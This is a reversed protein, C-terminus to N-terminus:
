LLMLAYALLRLVRRLPTTSLSKHLSGREVIHKKHVATYRGGLFQKLSPIASTLRWRPSFKATLDDFSPSPELCTVTPGKLTLTDPDTTADAVDDDDHLSGDELTPCKIFIQEQNLFPVRESSVSSETIHSSKNTANNRFPRISSPQPMAPLLGLSIQDTTTRPGPSSSLPAWHTFSPDSLPCDPVGAPVPLPDPPELGWLEHIKYGLM